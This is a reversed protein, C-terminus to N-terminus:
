ELIKAATVVAALLMFMAGYSWLFYRRLEEHVYDKLEASLEIIRKELAAFGVDMKAELRTIETRVFSETALRDGEGSPFQSLMAEVAEEDGVAQTLGQYLANRNRETLAVDSGETEIQLHWPFNVADTYTVM